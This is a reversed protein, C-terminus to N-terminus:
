DLIRSQLLMFAREDKDNDSPNSTRTDGAARGMVVRWGTREVLRALGAATFIWYNTSDNNSETPGLLYATPLHGIKTGDPAFRAVRTSLLLHRATKALSELVYFPNKLHYLIGLFFILDYDSRPLAFQSDLDIDFVSVLPQMALAQVLHRCGKLGNHNTPAHDIVDVTCGQGALFLALDGDAAGIDAVRRSRTLTDLPHENLFERLLLFNSLTGYPYWAIGPEKEKLAKLKPEFAQAAKLLMDGNM